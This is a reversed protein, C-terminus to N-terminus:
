DHSERHILDGQFAIGIARDLPMDPTGICIATIVNLDADLTEKFPDWVGKNVEPGELEGLKSAIYMLIKKGPVFDGGDAKEYASDLDACKANSAFAARLPSVALLIALLVYPM